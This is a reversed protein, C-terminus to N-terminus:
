VCVSHVVRTLVRTHTHEHTHRRAARAKLEHVSRYRPAPPAPPAAAAAAGAAADEASPEAAAAMVADGDAVPAAGAAPAAAAPAAAAAAAAATAAAASAAAAAAAPTAAPVPAATPAAPAELALPAPAPPIFEYRDAILVFRLDFQKCLAWFYDTEARSRFACRLLPAALVCETLTSHSPHTRAHTRPHSPARSSPTHAHWDPDDGLKLVDWEIDNYELLEQPRSAPPLRTLASCARLTHSFLPTSSARVIKKNYKAFAYDGGVDGGNSGARLLPAGGEM